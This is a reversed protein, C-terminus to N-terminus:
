YFVRVEETERLRSRFRDRQNCIVKLMSNQDQDSIAHKQEANQKLCLEPVLIYVEEFMILYQCGSRVFYINKKLFPLRLHPLKM